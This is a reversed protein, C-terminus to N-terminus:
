EDQVEYVLEDLTMGLAEALMCVTDVRPIHRCQEITCVASQGIGVMKALEDQTLGMETRRRRLNKALTEISFTM